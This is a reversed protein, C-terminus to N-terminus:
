ESDNDKPPPCRACEHYEPAYHCFLRATKDSVQLEGNNFVAEFEVIKAGDEKSIQEKCDSVMISRKDFYNVKINSDAFISLFQQNVAALREARMKDLSNSLNATIGKEKPSPQEFGKKASGIKIWYYPPLCKGDKDWDIFSSIVKIFLHNEGSKLVKKKFAKIAEQIGRPLLSIEKLNDGPYIISCLGLQFVTKVMEPKAGALFGFLSFKKKDITFFGEEENMTQSEAMNFYYSFDSLILFCPAEKHQIAEPVKRTRLAIKRSPRREVMEKFTPHEDKKEEPGENLAKLAEKESNYAKMSFPKGQCISSVTGWNTYVGRNPGNFITYYRRRPKQPRFGEEDTSDQIKTTQDLASQTVEKKPLLVAELPNSGDKGSGNAVPSPEEEELSSSSNNGEPIKGLAKSLQYLEKELRSVQLRRFELEAQILAIREQIEGPDM